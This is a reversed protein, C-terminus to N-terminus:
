RPVFTLDTTGDEKRDMVSLCETWCGDPLMVCIPIPREPYRILMDSTSRYVPWLAFWQRTYTRAGPEQPTNRALSMGPSVGYELESRM